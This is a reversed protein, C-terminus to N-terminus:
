AVKRTETPEDNAAELVRPTAPAKPAAAQAVAQDALMPISARDLGIDALTRNDLRNLASATAARRYSAIIPAFLRAVGTGVRKLAGAVTVAAGRFAQARLARGRAIALEKNGELLMASGSTSAPVHTATIVETHLYM